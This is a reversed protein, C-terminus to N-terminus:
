SSGKPSTLEREREERMQRVYAATDFPVDARGLPHQTWETLLRRNHSGAAERNLLDLLYAQLSQGKEKAQAALEDRTKAPVDRVQIAVV